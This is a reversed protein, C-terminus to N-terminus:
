TKLLTPIEVAAKSETLRTRFAVHSGSIVAFPRSSNNTELAGGVCLYSASVSHKAVVYGQLSDHLLGKIEQM